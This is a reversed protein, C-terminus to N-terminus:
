PGGSVCSTSAATCDIGSNGPEAERTSVASPQGSQDNVKRDEIVREGVAESIDIDEKEFYRTEKSPYLQYM